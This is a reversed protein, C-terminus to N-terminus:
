RTRERTLDTRLRTLGAVAPDARPPVFSPRLLGNEALKALWM